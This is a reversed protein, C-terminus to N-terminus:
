ETTGCINAQKLGLSRRVTSPNFRRRDWASFSLDTEKALLRGQATAPISKFINQPGQVALKPCPVLSGNLLAIRRTEITRFVRIITALTHEKM